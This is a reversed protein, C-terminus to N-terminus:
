VVVPEIISAVAFPAVASPVELPANVSEVPVLAVADVPAIKIDV